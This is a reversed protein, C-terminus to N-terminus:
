KKVELFGFLLIGNAINNFLNIDVFSKNFEHIQIKRLIQEEFKDLEKLNLTKYEKFDEQEISIDIDSGSVDEGNRFSGFLIISKPHDYYEYLFEILGSQYIFNLNYIIKNRLFYQSKRNARIRWIKSLKEVNIFNMQELKKLINGLNAKAVGTENAVDSLSFEKEPFKFFLEMVKQIGTKILLEQYINPKIIRKM